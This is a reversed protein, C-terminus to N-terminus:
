LPPHLFMEVLTNRFRWRRAFLVNMWFFIFYRAERDAPNLDSVEGEHTAEEVVGDM